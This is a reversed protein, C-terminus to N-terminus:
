EDLLERRNDAAGAASAGIERLGATAIRRFEAFREVPHRAEDPADLSLSGRTASEAAGQRWNTVDREDHYTECSPRFRIRDGALISRLLPTACSSILRM